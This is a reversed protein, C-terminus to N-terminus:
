ELKQKHRVRSIGENEEGREGVCTEPIVGGVCDRVTERVAAEVHDRIVAVGAVGTDQVLLNL